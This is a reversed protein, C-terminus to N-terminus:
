NFSVSSVTSKKAGVKFNFFLSFPDNDCLNYILYVYGMVVCNQGDHQENERPLCVSDINPAFKVRESLYILAIDNHLNTQM